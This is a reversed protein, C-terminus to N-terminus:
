EVTNQTFAAALISWAISRLKTFGYRFEFRVFIQNYITTPLLALSVLLIKGTKKLVERIEVPKVGGLASSMDLMVAYRLAWLPAVVVVRRFIRALEGRWNNRFTKLDGLAARWQGTFFHKAWRKLPGMADGKTLPIEDIWALIKPFEVAHWLSFLALAGVRWPDAVAGHVSGQVMAEMGAYTVAAEVFKTGYPHKAMLLEYAQGARHFVGQANREIVAREAPSAMALLADSASDADCIAEFVAHCGAQLQAVVADQALRDKASFVADAHEPVKALWLHRRVWWESPVRLPGGLPSSMWRQHRDVARLMGDTAHAHTYIATQLHRPDGTVQARMLTEYRQATMGGLRNPRQIRRGRAVTPSSGSGKAPRVPGPM